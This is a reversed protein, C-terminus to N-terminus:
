QTLLQALLLISELFLDLENSSPIRRGPLIRRVEPHCVCPTPRSPWGDKEWEDVHRRTSRPMTHRRPSKASPKDPSPNLPRPTSRCRCTTSTPPSFSNKAAR